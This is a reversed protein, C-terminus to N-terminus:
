RGTVQNLDCYWDGGKTGVDKKYFETKLAVNNLSDKVEQTGYNRGNHKQWAYGSIQDDHECTHRIHQWPKTTPDTLGFWMIGTLLTEPSRTRTGFYLNPRYTGWLM